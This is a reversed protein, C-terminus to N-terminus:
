FGTRPMILIDICGSEIDAAPGDSFVCMSLCTTLSLSLSIVEEPALKNIGNQKRTLKRSEPGRSRGTPKKRFYVCNFNVNQLLRMSNLVRSVFLM